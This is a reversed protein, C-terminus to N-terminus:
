RLMTKQSKHQERSLFANSLCSIYEVIYFLKNQKPTVMYILVSIPISMEFYLFLWLGVVIM